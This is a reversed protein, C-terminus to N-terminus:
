HVITTLIAIGLVILVAGWAKRTKNTTSFWWNSAKEIKQRPGFLFLLGSALSLLGLIVIFRVQSSSSASLLLLVGVVIAAPGLMRPDKTKLKDCCKERAVQTAFVMLTGFMIWFLAIAFLFWIM